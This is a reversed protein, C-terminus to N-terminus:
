RLVREAPPRHPVSFERVWTRWTTGVPIRAPTADTCWIMTSVLGPSPQKANTAPSDLLVKAVCRDDHGTVIRCIPPYDPKGMEM